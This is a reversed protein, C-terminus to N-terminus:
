DVADKAVARTQSTTPLPEGAVTVRGKKKFIKLSLRTRFISRDRLANWRERANKAITGYAPM